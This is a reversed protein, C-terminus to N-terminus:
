TQCESKSIEMLFIALERKSVTSPIRLEDAKQEVYSIDTSRMKSGQWAGKILDERTLISKPDSPDNVWGTRVANELVGSYWKGKQSDDLNYENVVLAVKNAVKYNHQQMRQVMTAYVAVNVPQSLTKDERGIIGANIAKELLEQRRMSIAVDESMILDEIYTTQESGTGDINEVRDIGSNESAIVDVTVPKFDFLGEPPEPPKEYAFSTATCLTITGIVTLSIIRRIKKM